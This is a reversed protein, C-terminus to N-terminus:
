AQQVLWTLDFRAMVLQQYDATEYFCLIHGKATVALDSYAAFAPELIRAVPWTRCEDDSLRVTLHSRQERHSPHALLVRGADYRVISGQCSLEPLTPDYEVASWQEGGDHSWAVARCRRGQRSRLNMYVVGDSCEVAECEDSADTTLKASPRWSQGHDDSLFAISSQVKGWTAPPNRWTAPGPSEDVWAPILLRGSQLQIGHGPGTGLYSWTREKVADTIEVPTSWHQGDDESRTLFVEQNDKCFLLLAAGTVRDVVPCPNGCTRSGDSVVIQPAGWSQGEDVSRRLVIDIEDEDHGNHRRAECFALVTGQTTVTLAPIRYRFYGGEGALFLTQKNM